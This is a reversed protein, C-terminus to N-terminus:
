SNSPSANEIGGALYVIVHTKDMQTPPRIM